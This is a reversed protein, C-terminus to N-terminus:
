SGDIPLRVVAETGNGEAPSRLELRGAFGNSRHREVYKAAISLGLGSGPENRVNKGRRFPLYLSDIEDQLVGTGFDRVVIECFRVSSADRSRATVIIPGLLGDPGLQRRSYKDANQVLEQIAGVLLTPDGYLIIPETDIRVDRGRGRVSEVAQELVDAVEIPVPNFAAERLMRYRTLISTLYASLPRLRPHIEEPPSPDEVILDFMMSKILHVMDIIFLELQTYHELAQRRTFEMWFLLSSLFYQESDRVLPKAIFASAGAELALRRADASEDVTLLILPIMPNRARIYRILDTGPM